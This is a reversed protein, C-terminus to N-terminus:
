VAMSRDAVVPNRPLGLRDLLDLVKRNLFDVHSRDNVSLEMTAERVSTGRLVGRAHLLQKEAHHFLEMNQLSFTIQPLVGQFISYAADMEENCLLAYIRALLDLLGLGPMVGSIGAPVLELMYMGGWGELVGVEGDTEQRIADVKAAMM